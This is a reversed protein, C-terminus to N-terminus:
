INLKQFFVRNRMKSDNLLKTWSLVEMYLKINGMWRYWGLGDPMQTFEKEDHLWREVKTGLDCIVYGYFHTNPSVAIDRGKPTKHKGDRIENVYRKIQEIPDEKSSPNAFDHRQPRKFEFIIIPNTAENDGRFAIRRNFITIDSRGGKKADIAKDSAFYTTFNLREDLMWLNHQEYDLTLSDKKRPMIIDHVDGESRYKGKEDLELSKEFLDLVCKRLSVYHALDNKSTQSISEVVEAVKQKLDDSAPEKLIQQVTARARLEKQFKATQLHIEIQEPSPSMPLAAFDADKELLRHWPAQTEVYHAIRERKRQQRATIEEGIAERAIRSAAEEIQEQSIGHLLDSDHEFHFAGRELSVNRDLYDGFVYAKVIYNADKGGPATDGKEYFEDAFEPIYTQISVETVERRHAVLSVKSKQGSPAYFKFVRVFFTSSRGEPGLTVTPSDLEIEVIQRTELSLYDNLVVSSGDEDRLTIRPCKTTRDIFYPLLKEVLVRAIVDLSKHQFKTAKLGRIEVRSGTHTMNPPGLVEDVIIDNKSGMCFRRGRLDSNDRFVSDVRVQEFYKLCTFRGFGKGGDAAKQETYLEDFADRNTKNFGIGNDEVVFGDVAPMEDVLDGAKSRLVEVVIKGGTTKVARIAQIANVILEVVPTYVTTGSRINEVIRRININSM